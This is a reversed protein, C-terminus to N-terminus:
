YTFIITIAVCKKVNYNYIPHLRCGRKWFLSLLGPTGLLKMHKMGGSSNFFCRPPFRQFVSGFIQILNVVSKKKKVSSESFYMDKCTKESTNDCTLVVCGRECLNSGGCVHSWLVLSPVHFRFVVSSLSLFAIVCVVILTM